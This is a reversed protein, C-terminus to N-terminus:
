LELKARLRQIQQNVAALESQAIDFRAQAEDREARATNLELQAITRDTEATSLVAALEGPDRLFADTKPDYFRLAPHPPCSPPTM